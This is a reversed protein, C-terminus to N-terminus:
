DNIEMKHNNAPSGRLKLAAADAEELWKRRQEILESLLDLSRMSIYQTILQLSSWQGQFKLGIRFEPDGQHYHFNKIVGRMFFPVLNGTASLPLSFSLNIESGEAFFSYTYASRNVVVGIGEISIDEIRGKAHPRDPFLVEIPETPPVRVCNRKNVFRGAFHFDNLIVIFSRLDIAMVHGAITELVSDVQMLTNQEIQMCIAQHETVQCTITDEGVGLIKGPNSVTLWDYTNYFTIKEHEKLVKNFIGDFKRTM